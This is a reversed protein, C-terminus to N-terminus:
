GSRLKARDKRWVCDFLWDQAFDFSGANQEYRRLLTL